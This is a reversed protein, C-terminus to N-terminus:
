SSFSKPGLVIWFLIGGWLITFIGGFWVTWGATTFMRILGIVIASVLPWAIVALWKMSKEGKWFFAYCLLMNLEFTGEVRFPLVCLSRINM